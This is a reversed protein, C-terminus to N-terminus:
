EYRVETGRPIKVIQGGQSRGSEELYAIGRWHNCLVWAGSQGDISLVWSGFRKRILTLFWRKIGPKWPITQKQLAIFPTPIPHEPMGEPRDLEHLDVFEFDDPNRRMHKELEDPSRPSSKKKSM